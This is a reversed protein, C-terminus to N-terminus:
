EAEDPLYGDALPKKPRNNPDLKLRLHLEIRDRVMDVFIVKSLDALSSLSELDM